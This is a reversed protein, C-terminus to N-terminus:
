PSGKASVGGIQTAVTEGHGAPVGFARWSTPDTSSAPNPLRTRDIGTLALRRGVAKSVGVADIAAKLSLGEATIRALAAGVRAEADHVAARATRGALLARRGDRVAVAIRQRRARAIPGREDRSAIMQDVRTAM